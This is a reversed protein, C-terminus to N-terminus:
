PIIELASRGRWRGIVNAARDIAVCWVPDLPEGADGPTVDVGASDLFAHGTPQAAVRSALQSFSVVGPAATNAQLSRSTPLATLLISPQQSLLRPMGELDAVRPLRSSNYPTVPWARSAPAAVPMLTPHMAEASGHHPIKLVAHGGLHPNSAIVSDWGTPVPTNTGPLYRPLDGTLVVRAGDYEVELVLSFHNAQNMRPASLFGQLSTGEPARAVVTAQTGPLPLAAGDRLPVVGGPHAAEWGEIALLAGLVSGARIRDSGGARARAIQASMISRLDPKGTGSGAVAITMPDFLEVLEAFGGVHDEHPHTLVMALVPDDKPARFRTVISELPIEGSEMTCGDVLMWGAGPLAVAIGEGKGPGAVFVYLLERNLPGLTDLDEAASM